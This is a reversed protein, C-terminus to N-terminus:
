KHNQEFQRFDAELATLEDLFITDPQYSSDGLVKSLHAKEQALQKMTDLKSDQILGWIVDGVGPEGGFRKRLERHKREYDERSGRTWVWHDLQWIYKAYSAQRETLFPTDYLFQKPDVAVVQNCHKCTFKSRRSPRKRGTLEASCYPCKPEFPVKNWPLHYAKSNKRYVPPDPTDMENLSAAAMDTTRTSSVMKQNRTRRVGLFLLLVAIGMVIAAPGFDRSLLGGISALFLIIGVLIILARLILRLM